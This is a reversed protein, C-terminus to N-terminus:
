EVTAALTDLLARLPATSAAGFTVDSIAGTGLNITEGLLRNSGDKPLNTVIWGAAADVASSMAAFATAVDYADDVQRQAYDGIGPIAALAALEAKLALLRGLLTKVYTYGVTGTLTSSAAAAENKARVALGNFRTFAEPLVALVAM